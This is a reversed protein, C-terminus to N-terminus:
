LQTWLGAVCAPCLDITRDAGARGIITEAEHLAESLKHRQTDDIGSLLSILQAIPGTPDGGLIIASLSKIREDRILSMQGMTYGGTRLKVLSPTFVRWGRTLALKRAAKGGVPDVLDPDQARCVNCVLACRTVERVPNGRPSMGVVPALLNVQEPTYKPAKAIMANISELTVEPKPM